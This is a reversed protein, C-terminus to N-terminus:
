YEQDDDLYDNEPPLDFKIMPSVSCNLEAAYFDFVADTMGKAGEYNELYEQVSISDIYLDIPIGHALAFIGSEYYKRVVLPDLSM